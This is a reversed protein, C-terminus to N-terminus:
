GDPPATGAMIALHDELLAHHELPVLDRWESVGPLHGPNRLILETKLYPFGLRGVLVRWLHHTPNLPYRQLSDPDRFRPGLTERTAADTEALVRDYGFLAACRVGARLARRTLGIEGRQVVRWKSRTDQMGGLHGLVLEVAVPGRALLAYSQLHTGGGRSETLGFFGEGGGRWAAVLPGLPLFPGLVSDNVLLVEQQSGFRARAIAGGDRWAGFDRGVNTRRLRLCADAGIAEWDEPPPQANTIFVVDFGAERWLAVQRRVMASIRGSPSWHLYLALRGTNAPPCGDAVLTVGGQLPAMRDLLASGAIEGAVEALRRVFTLPSRSALGQLIRPLHEEATALESLQYPKM